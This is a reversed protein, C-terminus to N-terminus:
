AHTYPQVAARGATDRWLLVRVVPDLGARRRHPVRRDRRAGRDACLRPRRLHRRPPHHAARLLREDGPHGDGGRVSDCASGADSVRRTARLAGVSGDGWADVLDFYTRVQGSGTQLPMMAYTAGARTAVT